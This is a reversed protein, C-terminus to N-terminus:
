KFLLTCFLLLCLVGCFAELCCFHGKELASQLLHLVPVVCFLANRARTDYRRGFRDPFRIPSAKVWVGSVGSRIFPPSSAHIYFFLLFASILIPIITGNFFPAGTSVDRSVFGRLLVPAATGCLVVMSTIFFCVNQLPVM